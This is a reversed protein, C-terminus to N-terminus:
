VLTIINSPTVSKGVRSKLIKGEGKQEAENKGIIRDKLDSIREESEEMRTNM